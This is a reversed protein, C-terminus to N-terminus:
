RTSSAIARRMCWAWGAPGSHASCRTAAPWWTAQPWSRERCPTRRRCAPTTWSRGCCPASPVSRPRGSRSSCSASAACAGAIAARLATRVRGQFATARVDLPLDLRPQEGALHRLLANVWLALPDGDRRLEAGPHEVALEATLAEDSEGLRVTCIGRATAAVLLRGLPSDVITYGIVPAAPPAAIATTM